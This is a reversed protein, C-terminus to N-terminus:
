GHLRCAALEIMSAEEIRNRPQNLMSAVRALLAARSIPKRLLSYRRDLMGSGALSVSEDFHGTLLIASLGPRRRRVESLLSLGDMGPLGLDSIVLDLRRGSKLWALANEGDEALNVRYGAEALLEGLTYRVSPEDEVVLLDFDAAEGLGPRPVQRLPLWREQAPQSQGAQPLWLSVTIGSGADDVKLGGGSQVAFDRAIAAGLNRTQDFPDATALAQDLAQPLRGGSAPAEGRATEIVIRVYCGTALGVAVAEAMTVVDTYATLSLPRPDARAAERVSVLLALMVSELQVRDALVVLPPSSAVGLGCAAFHFDRGSTGWLETLVVALDLAELNLERRRAFPLLRRVIASGRTAAAELTAAFHQVSAPDDRRRDIMAAAATVVQLVNNLEHTVGASLYGLAQIRHSQALQSQMLVNEAMEDAVRAELDENRLRLDTVAAEATVEEVIATVAYIRDSGPSRVPYFSALWSRQVGLRANTEGSLAVNRVAEGTELPRRLLPLVKDALARPLMEEVSRGIHAAPPAGNIEALKTNISLFRLERDYLALGLPLNDQIDRAEADARAQRRRDARLRVLAVGFLVAVVAAPGFGLGTPWRARVAWCSAVVAQSAVFALALAIWFLPSRNARSM